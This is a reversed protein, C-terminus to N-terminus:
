LQGHVAECFRSCGWNREWLTKVQAQNGMMQMIKAVFAVEHM